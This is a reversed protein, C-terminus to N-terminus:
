PVGGGEDVLTVVGDEGQVLTLPTAEEEWKEFTRALRAYETSDDARFVIEAMVVPEEGGFIDATLEAGDMEVHVLQIGPILNSEGQM